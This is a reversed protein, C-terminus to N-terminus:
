KSDREHYEAIASFVPVVVTFCFIAAALSGQWVGFALASALAWIFNFAASERTTM